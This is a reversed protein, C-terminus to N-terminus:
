QKRQLTVMVRKPLDWWNKINNLMLYNDLAELENCNTLPEWTSVGLNWKVLFELKRETWHHSVIKNVYWEVKDLVGFNYPQAKRRNPFLTNDNPSHPRLLSM